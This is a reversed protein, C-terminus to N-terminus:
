IKCSNWLKANLDWNKKEVSSISKLTGRRM